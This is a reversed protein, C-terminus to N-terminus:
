QHGAFCVQESRRKLDELQRMTAARVSEAAAWAEHEARAAEAEPVTPLQPDDAADCDPLSLAPAPLAAAAAGSLAGEAGAHANGDCRSHQQCPSVPLCQKTAGVANLQHNCIMCPQCALLLQYLRAKSQQLSTM